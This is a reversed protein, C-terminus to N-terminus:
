GEGDEDVYFCFGIKDPGDFDWDVQDLEEIDLKPSWDSNSWDIGRQRLDHEVLEVARLRADSPTAAEVVRTTYFGMREQKGELTLFLNHGHVFAKYRNM